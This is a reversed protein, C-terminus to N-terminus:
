DGSRIEAVLALAALAVAGGVVGLAKPDGAKVKRVFRRGEVKARDAIDAAQTKAESVKIRPDVRGSLEDVTTTLQQRTLEIDKKIQEPTRAKAAEKEKAQQQKKARAAADEASYSGGATVNDSM